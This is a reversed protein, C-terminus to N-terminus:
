GSEQFSSDMHWVGVYNNNWVGTPNQQNEVTPNNYYMYITTNEETSLFPIRIWTALYAHTSNYAIDYMEIEHDLKMHDTSLFLLDDGDAQTNLRLDEDFLVLLIPFNTLNSVIKDKNIIIKKRSSFTSVPWNPNFIEEQDIFYFNKPNLHNNYETKIWEASKSVNSVRVEDISGNWFRSEYNYYQRGIHAIENSDVLTRTDMDAQLEGDVYLTNLGNNIVGVIHHWDSDTYTSDSDASTMTGDGIWFRFRNDSHRVLAYGNDDTDDLKGAIGMYDGSLGEIQVWAEITLEGTIQLSNSNPISIYTEGDFKAGFGSIGAIQEVSSGIVQGNNSYPSSDTLSDLHWVGCYGSNWVGSPNEQNDITPNGYYMIITTNEVNSLQSIRIWAVLYAHTSNYNNDFYEIEHDLTQNDLDVFLIDDGDVQTHSRLNEDVLVLLFPFDTLNGEVLNSNITIFKRYNYSLAGWNEYNETSAKLPNQLDHTDTKTEINVSRLSSQFYNDKRQHFGNSHRLSQLIISDDEAEHYGGVRTYIVVINVTLLIVLIFSQLILNQRILM